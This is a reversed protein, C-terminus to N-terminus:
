RAFPNDNYIAIVRDDLIDEILPKVEPWDLMGNGCGPRPLLVKDWHMLDMYEMLENASRVILEPDAVNFWADKVPYAVYYSPDSTDPLRLVGVHNGNERLHMGLMAPMEPWRRQAQGAVGAGMVGEGSRKVFGNTTICKADASEVFLNLLAEIM